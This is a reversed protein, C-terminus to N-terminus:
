QMDSLALIPAISIKEKFTDFSKHQKGEWQFVHKVSTLACLHATVFSLNAIFNRWYKLAGLFSM